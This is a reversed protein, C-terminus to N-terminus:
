KSKKAPSKRKKATPKAKAKPKSKKSPLKQAPILVEFSAVASSKAMLSVIKYVKPAYKALEKLTLELPTSYGKAWAGRERRVVKRSRVYRYLATNKPLMRAKMSSALSLGGDDTGGGDGSGDPWADVIVTEDEECAGNSNECYYGPQSNDEILQYDGGVCLYTCTGPDSSLAAKTKVSKSLAKKM